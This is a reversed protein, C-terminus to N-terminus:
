SNVTSPQAPVDRSRALMTWAMARSPLDADFMRSRLLVTELVPEVAQVLDRASRRPPGYERPPGETSGALCLWQARPGLVSAVREAFRAQEAAEDFVHFVGRDFVFDFPGAPLPDRMFDLVSLQLNAGADRRKAEAREIALKSIDIGHVDFGRTSLWIAHTGTGCGIELTRGPTIVGQEVLEVLQPDPTGSDWPLDESAYHADWDHKPM